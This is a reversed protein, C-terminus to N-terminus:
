AYVPLASLTVAVPRAAFPAAQAPTSLTPMWLAFAVMASLLAAAPRSLSQTM